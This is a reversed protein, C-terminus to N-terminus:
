KSRRGKYKPKKSQKRRTGNPKEGRKKIEKEKEKYPVFDIQKLECNVKSLVVDLRDGIKYVKGNRRGYLIMNNEDFEYYDDDLDVMRVLGEITNEMQVFFGFSTTSSIVVSFKQGVKDAMFECAKYDVYDREAIAAENETESSQQSARKSKVFLATINNENLEGNLEMSLIRHVFLDPYRRIPSTFHCYHEASLGFHGLNEEFYRAKMMSRLMMTSIALEADTGTIEFLLNQMSKPSVTEKRKFKYGLQRVVNSLRDIKESEPQEHVRFIAPLENKILHKAVTENAVLMFEEIIKNSIKIDYKVIDTVKGNEDTIVKAEPFNFDISGRRSRKDRLILALTRMLELMPIIETYKERSAMDGDLIKAVTTYDMRHSSKIVTKEIKYDIVGGNPLIEMFCSLTLRPRHPLLSCLGNSLKKPLMPVVTDVLYVSTGRNFAEDDIASGDKVYHSVDAIHVGLLFNGNKLQELSIADDLDKADEGDITIITKDFLNVRKDIEEQPIVDGIEKLEEAVAYNFEVSYDKEKLYEIIDM